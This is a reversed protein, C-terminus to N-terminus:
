DARQCTYLSPSKLTLLLTVDKLFSRKLLSTFLTLTPPLTFHDSPQFNIETLFSRFTKLSSKRSLHSGELAM